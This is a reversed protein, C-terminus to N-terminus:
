SLYHMNTLSLQYQLEPLVWQNNHTIGNETMSKENVIKINEDGQFTYSVHYSIICPIM